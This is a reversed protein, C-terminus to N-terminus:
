RAELSEVSFASVGRLSDDFLFLARTNGDLAPASESPVFDEKYRVVDSIRLMDMSGEFPGIIVDMAETSLAINQQAKLTVIEWPKLSGVRPRYYPLKRGNLFVTLEGKPIDWTYVMHVWEGAKFFHEV